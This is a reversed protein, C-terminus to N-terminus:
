KKTRHLRQLLEEVRTSSRESQDLVFHIEPVHRLELDEALRHRVFGAAAQLGRMTAQAEEETGMVSVFVRANRLDETLKVETVTALGVRPDRLEGEIIEALEIRIQEALRESRHPVSV